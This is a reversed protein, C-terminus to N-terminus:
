NDDKTDDQNVRNSEIFKITQMVNTDIWSNLDEFFTLGNRFGFVYGFVISSIIGILTVILFISWHIM